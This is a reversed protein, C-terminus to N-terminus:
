CRWILPNDSFCISYRHQPLVSTPQVWQNFCHWPGGYVCQGKVTAMCDHNRCQLLFCVSLVHVHFLM